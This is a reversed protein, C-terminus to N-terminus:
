DHDFWGFFEELNMPHNSGYAKFIADRKEIWPGDAKVLDDIAQILREIMQDTLQMKEEQWPKPPGIGYEDDDGDQHFDYDSKTM